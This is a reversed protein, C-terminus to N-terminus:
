EVRFFEDLSKPSVPGMEIELLDYADDKGVIRLCKRKLARACEAARDRMATRGSRGVMLFVASLLLVVFILQGYFRHPQIYWKLEEAHSLEYEYHPYKTGKTPQVWQPRASVGSAEAGFVFLGRAATYVYGPRPLAQESGEVAKLYNNYAQVYEDNAYLLARGLTWSFKKGQLKEVLQLSKFQDDVPKDIGFRPFGLGVHLFNLIWSTKFCLEALDEEPLKETRLENLELLENLPRLCLKQTKKYILNYDYEESVPDISPLTQSAMLLNITDWYGSVGVFHNIDFDFLPVMDNLLCRSVKYEEELKQCDGNYESTGLTYTGNALVPFISELCQLFDSSGTFDVKHDDVEGTFTYGKPLCPDLIPTRFRFVDKSIDNTDRHKDLLFKLYRNHAQYMGFGLFSDSYVNLTYEVPAAYPPNAEPNTKKGQLPLMALRVDYLNNKHEEIETLNPQFVVQTSAGGMDLLGYTTHNKGHQHLEPLDFAGLVYNILLWGYLGEINGDIVSVHSLCDPMYFGLNEAFYACVNELIPEQENPPLFRMGATAHLFIPTRHHQLKPVVSSAFNLLHLLHHKGVKQPSQSFLALGVKVQKYWKKGAGIQPFRFSKRLTPEPETDSDSDSDSDHVNKPEFFRRELKVPAQLNLGAQLAHAPNLWSYVFVRSGLSGADIVIIYDYPIGEPSTLPAEKIKPKKEKKVPM